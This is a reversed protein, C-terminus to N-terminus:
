MQLLTYILKETIGGMVRVYKFFLTIALAPYSLPSDKGVPVKKGIHISKCNSYAILLTTSYTGACGGIEVPIVM